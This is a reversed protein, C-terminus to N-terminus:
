ESMWHTPKWLRRGLLYEIGICLKIYWRVELLKNQNLISELKTFMLLQLLHFVCVLTSVFLNTSSLLKRLLSRHQSILLINQDYVECNWFSFNLWIHHLLYGTRSCSWIKIVEEDQYIPDSSFFASEEFICHWLLYRRESFDSVGLM